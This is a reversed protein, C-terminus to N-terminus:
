QIAEISPLSRRNLLQLEKLHDGPLGHTFVEVVDWMEGAPLLEVQVGAKAGRAEIWAVTETEGRRLRCQFFQQKTNTV